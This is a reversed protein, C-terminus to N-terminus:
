IVPRHPLYRTTISRIELNWGAIIAMNPIASKYYMQNDGKGNDLLILPKGSFLTLSSAAIGAAQDDSGSNPLALTFRLWNITMILHTQAKLAMSFLMNETSLRAVVPTSFGWQALFPFLALM